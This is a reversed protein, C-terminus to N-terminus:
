DITRFPYIPLPRFDICKNQLNYDQAMRAMHLCVQPGSSTWPGKLSAAQQQHKIKAEEAMRRAKAEMERRKQVKPDEVPAGSLEKAPTLAAIPQQLPASLEPVSKTLVSSKVPSQSTSISSVISPSSLASGRQDGIGSSRKRRKAEDLNQEDVSATRKLVNTGAPEMSDDVGEPVDVLFKFSPVPM